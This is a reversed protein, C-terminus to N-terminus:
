SHSYNNGDGHLLFHCSSQLHLFSSFHLKNAVQPSYKLKHKMRDTWEPSFDSWPGNWEVDNAWPNRIQLLKHGDVERVQFMLTIPLMYHTKALCNRTHGSLLWQSHGNSM